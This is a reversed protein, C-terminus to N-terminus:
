QMSLRLVWSHFSWGWRNGCVFMHQNIMRKSISLSSLTHVSVLFLYQEDSDVIVTLSNSTTNRRYPRRYLELFSTAYFVGYMQSFLCMITWMSSYSSNHKQFRLREELPPLYCLYIFSIQSCIMRIKMKINQIEYSCQYIRKSDIPSKIKLM